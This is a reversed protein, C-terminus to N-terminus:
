KPWGPATIEGDATYQVADNEIKTTTELDVPATTKPRRGDQLKFQEPVKFGRPAVGLERALASKRQFLLANCKRCVRRNGREWLNDGSMPHGRGCHTAKVAAPWRGKAVADSANESATGLWLHSPNVCSPNDCSHCVQKDGPDVGNAIAWALRPAIFRAGGKNFYGRGNPGSQGLWAWCEAPSGRQAKAWFVEAENATLIPVPKM